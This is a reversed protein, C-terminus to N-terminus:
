QEYEESRINYKDRVDKIKDININYLNVLEEIFKMNEEKNKSLTSFEYIRKLETEVLSKSKSNNSNPITVFDYIYAYKKGEFRRLVRGRRQIFEKPDTTSSMIFAYQIAPINIGEDLCKIAIIAQLSKETSFMDIIEQREESSEEATFKRIKMGYEIGLIKCVKDIQRETKGDEQVNTAGCYVLINNKNIYDKMLTKLLNLKNKAGAVIKSRKILLYKAIENIIIKGNEERINQAIKLSLEDYEEQEEETLEVLKPYYYYETLCREDENGYIARELDFNYVEKDFYNYIFNTSEEDRYRKPTASLGLRYKFRNDLVKKMTNTGANHAEDVLIFIEGQIQNIFNQMEEMVFTANTTIITFNNITGYNFLNIRDYVRKKWSPYASYCLIPHVNFKKVDESWQEVLHQYPCVIITVLKKCKDWLKAWGYLGTLTKGTGTAMSLLGVCSNKEWAEIAEEQYKRREFWKPIIPHENLEEVDEISKENYTEKKFNRYELLKEKLAKPFEMIELNETNNNWLDKFNEEFEEVYENQNENWSEFIVFSEFNKTIGKETENMSGTFLIKNGTIDEVIGFKEHYAAYEDMIAIKIDLRNDAILTAIYNLKEKIENSEINNFERILANLIVDERMKYGTKIVEIDEKNFLPSAVIQVNGGNKILADLGQSISILSSITFYGVARKYSSASSLVPNYFDKIMDNKNSRYSKSLNIENLLM